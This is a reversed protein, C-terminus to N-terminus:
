VSPPSLGDCRNVTRRTRNSRAIEFAENIVEENLAAALDSSTIAM